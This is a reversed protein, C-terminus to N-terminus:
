RRRSRHPSPRFWPSCAITPAIPATFFSILPSPSQHFLYLYGTLRPVSPELVAVDGAVERLSGSTSRFRSASRGALTRRHCVTTAPEVASQARSRLRRFADLANPSRPQLMSPERFLRSRLTAVHAAGSGSQRSHDGRFVRARALAPRLDADPESGDALDVSVLRLRSRSGPAAASASAAEAM